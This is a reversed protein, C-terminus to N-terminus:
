NLRDHMRQPVRILWPGGLHVLYTTVATGHTAGPQQRGRGRQEALGRRGGDLGDDGGAVAAMDNEKAQGPLPPVGDQACLQPLVRFWSEDSWPFEADARLGGRANVRVFRDRFVSHISM